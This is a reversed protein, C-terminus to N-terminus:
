ATAAPRGPPERYLCARLRSLIEQDDVQWGVFALRTPGDEQVEALESKGGVHNLFFRRDGLIAYGKLRYLQVPMAALFHRFCEARFPTRSEFSFTVYQPPPQRRAAQLHPFPAELGLDEPLYLSTEPTLGQCLGVLVEPDIRCYHTPLIAAGPNIERIERLYRAVEQDEQLDVKNLLVLHAARVQNFFLNGLHEKEQWYDADVVTVVRPEELHAQFQPMRFVKLIDEPDAVGTAEIFLRQPHFREWIEGLNKILDNLLSCCICGNALEVVQTGFGQLLQGDIGLQGFENVLVVTGSLNEPWGLIQRLLTTKGAGLFGAILIVQCRHNNKSSNM